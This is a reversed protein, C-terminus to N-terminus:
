MMGRILWLPMLTHEVEKRFRYYESAGEPIRVRSASGSGIAPPM